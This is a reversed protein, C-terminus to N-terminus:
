PQGAMNLPQFLDIRYRPATTTASLRFGHAMDARFVAAAQDGQLPNGSPGLYNVSVVEGGPWRASIQEALTAIGPPDLFYLFESVVILDFTGDPLPCPFFGRHFTGDPIAKQAEALARPVADFGAYRDTRTRLHRGLEGNGCGIELVADYHPRPLIGLTAAFKQQEYSSDRFCWPDGTNAYIADLHAKTVRGSM